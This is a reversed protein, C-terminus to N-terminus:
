SKPGHGYTTTLASWLKELMVERDKSLSGFSFLQPRRFNKVVIVVPLSHPLFTQATPAPGFAHFLRVPLSWRRWSRREDYNLFVGREGILPMLQPMWSKCVESDNTVVVIDKGPSMAFWAVVSLALRYAFIFPSVLIWLVLWLFTILYYIPVWFKFPIRSIAGKLKRAGLM